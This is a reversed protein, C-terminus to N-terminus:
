RARGLWRPVQRCYEDYPAGQKAHLHPEEVLTVVLHFWMWVIAGYLAITRSAFLLAQGFIALTVGLYMPNRSVRYFGNRVLGAPEEGLLFRLPRTFFIAPTGHAALFSALCSAYLTVGAAVAIWDLQWLGGALGKDGRMSYPAWFGVFGPILVSFVIGRLWLM